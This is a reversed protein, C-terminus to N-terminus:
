HVHNPDSWASLGTIVDFQRLLHGVVQNADAKTCIRDLEAMV